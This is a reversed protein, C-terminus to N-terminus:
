SLLFGTSNKSKPNLYNQPLGLSFTRYGDDCLAGEKVYTGDELLRIGNLKCYPPIWFLNLRRKLQQAILFQVNKSKQTSDRASDESAMSTSVEKTLKEVLFM